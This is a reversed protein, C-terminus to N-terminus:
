SGKKEVSAIVVHPGSPLLADHIAAHERGDV